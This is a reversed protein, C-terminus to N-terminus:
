YFSQTDFLSERGGMIEQMRRAYPNNLKEIMQNTQPVSANKFQNMWWQGFGTPNGGSSVYREAFSSVMDDTIEGGNIITTKLETGLKERKARDAEMYANIRFYNNTVIAEDLPKAGAVRVLTALSFLDNSGAINGNRQTSIVQLGDNGVARGVAAIGALPRSLGLHEIGGLFSEWLPAGNAVQGAAQKLSGFAKAFASIFPIESPNTPNPVVHWTRPNVDGRTYLSANLVNSPIGYMLWDAGEQGFILRTASHLDYHEPNGAANAILNNNILNFGPLSSAGFISGQLGAMMALAKGRGEGINRFLQQMLNIQYSQFLGMAQGIPGQFMLPREAARIVGNVRNNFTNVYMWAMKEDMIGQRVALETLQKMSDLAYLRNTEEVFKNGTIREMKNAFNALGEKIKQTKSTMDAVTETGTLTMADLSKFVQEGLDPLLGRKKYEEILQKGQPGHIRRYSNALLKAPSFIEDGGTGPVKVNALKSLLGAGESGKKIDNLVSKIEPAYLIALGVKNTIANFVDMRLMTATLFANATRVFTSLVGRPINQNALETAAISYSSRFGVEDFIQNIHDVQEQTIGKGRATQLVKSASDWARSVIGDLAENATRLWIPMEELKTINLMSKMIGIYPNKDSPSTLLEDITKNGMRSGKTEDWAKAMRKLEAVEKQYKMLVTEMFLAHESRVEDQLWMNVVKQPDTAPFFPSMIGRSKLDHDIYNEHLTKDYDWEGRAKYFEEAQQKTYVKYHGLREVEMIMRKLDEADKAILMQTHGVGVLTEDKVFAVHKYDRSDLRVPRFVGPERIHENGQLAHAAQQHALRRDALEIRAKVANRVPGEPLAIGSQQAAELLDAWDEDREKAAQIARKEPLTILYEGSDDLVMLDKTRAVQAWIASLKIADDPSTLIAQAHPTVADQVASIKTKKAEAVLNGLYSAMSSMSGYAGGANTLLGAGGEGRWASRLLEEPIDPFVEAFQGLYNAFHNDVAAKALKEREKIIQMGKVVMGENDVMDDVKYAVKAYRPLLDFHEIKLDNVNKGLFDAYEKMYSKTARFAEETTRATNAPAEVPAGKKRPKVKKPMTGEIFDKRVDSIAEIAGSRRKHEIQAQIVDAKALLLHEEIEANKLTRIAGDGVDIKIEDLGMNLAKELAPLDHSHFVYGKPFPTTSRRAAMWRLEFDQPTVDKSRFDLKENPKFSNKSLLKSIEEPSYRDAVRLYDPAGTMMEGIKGSHLQIYMNQDYTSLFKRAAAVNKFEGQAVLMAAEKDISTKQGARVIDRGQFAFRVVDDAGMFQALDAIQNGLVDDSSIERFGTQIRNRTEQIANNRTRELQLAEAEVNHPLLSEGSEGMAKKQALVIDPTAEIGELRKLDMAANVIKDSPLMQRTAFTETLSGFQVARTDAAKLLRGVGFYTQAASTIGGIAGGLGVGIMANAMLDSADMDDLIPSKFMTAAVATEFALGELVGQWTGAGLAKLSNQHMFSFASNQAALTAAERKVYTEMTPALIGTAKAFNGGAKGAAAARMANQAANLGKVAGLGPVFSTVVFGTLDAADENAKYYAGLDEDYSSIWDGTDNYEIANEEDRFINGVAIGSNWFSNLGSALSVGIFKPANWIAEGLDDFISTNDSAIAHADAAKLYSPAEDFNM